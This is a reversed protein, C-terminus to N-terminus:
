ANTHHANCITAYYLNMLLFGGANLLLMSKKSMRRQLRIYLFAAALAINGDAVGIETEVAVFWAGPILDAISSVGNIESVRQQVADIKCLSEPVADHMDIVASNHLQYYTRCINAEFIRQLPTVTLSGALYVSLKFAQCAYAM